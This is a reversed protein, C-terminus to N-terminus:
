ARAYWATACSSGWCITSPRPPVTNSRISCPWTRAPWAALMVADRRDCKREHRTIAHLKRPNAVIVTAGLDTLYRSIWPSHTGAELAVTAAPYKTLLLALAVRENLRPGEHLIQGQADLVCVYHSRDGLDLGITFGGAHVPATSTSVVSPTHNTKNKTKM